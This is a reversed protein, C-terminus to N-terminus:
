ILSCLASSSHDGHVILKYPICCACMCRIMIHAQGNTQGPVIAYEDHCIAVMLPLLVHCSHPFTNLPDLNALSNALSDNRLVERCQRDHRLCITVTYVRLGKYAFKQMMYVTKLRDSGFHQCCVSLQGSLAGLLNM